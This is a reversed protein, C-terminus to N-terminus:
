LTRMDLGANGDRRANKEGPEAASGGSVDPDGGARGAVGGGLRGAGHLAADPDRLPIEVRRREADVEVRELRVDRGHLRRHPAEPQGGPRVGLGMVAGVDGLQLEGGARDADAAGLEALGLRQHRM